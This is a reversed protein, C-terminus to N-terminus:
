CTKHAIEFDIVNKEFFLEYSVGKMFLKLSRIPADSLAYNAGALRWFSSNRRLYPIVMAIM